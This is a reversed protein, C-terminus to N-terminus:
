ASARLEKSEAEPAEIKGSKTAEKQAAAEEVEKQASAEEPSRAHMRVRTRVYLCVSSWLSLSAATVVAQTRM